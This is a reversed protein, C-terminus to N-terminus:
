KNLLEKLAGSRDVCYGVGLGNPGLHCDIFLPLPDFTFFPLDPFAERIDKEYEKLEEANIDPNSHSM